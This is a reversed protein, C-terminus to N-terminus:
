RDKITHISNLTGNYYGRKVPEHCYPCFGMTYINTQSGCRDCYAVPNSMSAELNFSSPLCFTLFDNSVDFYEVYDGDEDYYHKTYCIVVSVCEMGMDTSHNSIYFQKINRENVHYVTGRGSSMREICIENYIEHSVVPIVAEPMDKANVNKVKIFVNKAFQLFDLSNFGPYINRLEVAIENTKDPLVKVQSKQVAKQHNVTAAIVLIVVAIGTFLPFIKGQTVSTNMFTDLAFGLFLVFIYVIRIM